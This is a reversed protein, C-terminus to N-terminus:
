HTYFSGYKRGFDVEGPKVNCVVLDLGNSLGATRLRSYSGNLFVVM